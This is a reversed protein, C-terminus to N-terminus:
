YFMKLAKLLKKSVDTKAIYYCITQGMRYCEVIKLGEMKNLQHSTASHTLQVAEAVEYVCKGEKGATALYMLIRCRTPDSLVSFLAAVDMAKKQEDSMKM